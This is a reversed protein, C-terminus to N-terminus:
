YQGVGLEGISTSYNVTRTEGFDNYSLTIDVRKLALGIDSVVFTATRPSTLTAPIESSFDVSTGDAPLALYTSNRLAEVKNEVFATAVTLDRTRANLVNLNKVITSMSIIFFGSIVITILVELVTFGQENKQNLYSCCKQNNSKSTQDAIM